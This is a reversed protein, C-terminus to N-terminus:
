KSEVQDAWLVYIEYLLKYAARCEINMLVYSQSDM